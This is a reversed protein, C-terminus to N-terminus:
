FEESAGDSRYLGARFPGDRHYPAHDLPPASARVSFLHGMKNATFTPRSGKNLRPITYTLLHLPDYEWLREVTLSGRGEEMVEIKWAPDWNWCNIYVCNDSRRRSFSQGYAQQSFWDRISVAVGDEYELLWYKPCKNGFIM